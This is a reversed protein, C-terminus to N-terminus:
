KLKWLRRLEENIDDVDQPALQRGFKRAKPAGAGAALFDRCRM